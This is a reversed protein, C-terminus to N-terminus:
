DKLEAAMITLDNVMKNWDNATLPRQRPARTNLKQALMIANTEMDDLEFFRDLDPNKIHIEAYEDRVKRIEPLYKWRFWGSLSDDRDISTRMPSKDPTDPIANRIYEMREQMGTRTAECLDLTRQKLNGSIAVGGRRPPIKQPAVHPVIPRVEEDHQLPIQPIAEAPSSGQKEDQHQARTAAEIRKAKAADLRQLGATIGRWYVCGLIMGCVSAIMYGLIM